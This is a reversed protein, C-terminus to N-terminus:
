KRPRTATTSSGRTARALDRISRGKEESLGEEVKAAHKACAYLFHKYRTVSLPRVAPASPQGVPRLDEGLGNFVRFVELWDGAGFRWM